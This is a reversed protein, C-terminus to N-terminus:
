AQGHAYQETSLDEGEIQDYVHSNYGQLWFKSYCSPLHPFTFILNQLFRCSRNWIYCWGNSLNPLIKIQYLRYSEVNELGHQQLHRVKSSRRQKKRGAPLQMEFLWMAKMKLTFRDLCLRLSSSEETGWIKPFQVGLKEVDLESFSSYECWFYKLINFENSKESYTVTYPITLFIFYIWHHMAKGLNM